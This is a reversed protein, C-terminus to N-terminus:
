TPTIMIEIQVTHKANGIALIQGILGYTLMSPTIPASPAIIATAKVHCANSMVTPAPPKM